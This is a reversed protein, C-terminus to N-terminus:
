LIPVLAYFARVFRVKRRERLAQRAWELELLIEEKSHTALIAAVTIDSASDAAAMSDGQASAEEPERSDLQHPEVAGADDPTPADDLALSPQNM